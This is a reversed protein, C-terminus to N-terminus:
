EFGVSSTLHSMLMRAFNLKISDFTTYTALRVHFVSHNRTSCKAHSTITIYATDLISEMGGEEETGLFGCSTFIGFLYGSLIETRAYIFVLYYKLKGM